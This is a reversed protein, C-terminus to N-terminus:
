VLLIGSALTRPFLAAFLLPRSMRAGTSFRILSTWADVALPGYLFDSPLEVEEVVLVAAALAAVGALFEVITAEVGAASLLRPVATM